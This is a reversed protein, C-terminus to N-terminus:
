EFRKFFLGLLSEPRLKQIISENPTIGEIRSLGLHIRDNYWKLFGDFSKFNSRNEEYTRNWRENKGNTQPHNIRSLIQKINQEKLFVEFKAIGKEANLKKKNAYFQSGRDTNLALLLMSYKEFAVTKAKLVMKQANATTASNFEGGALILRSADDIWIIVEKGPIIKSTHYDMHGLSGSHKREYRCYTRQKKKKPDEKSIGKEILLAHLKNRPIIKNHYKMIYLRLAVAGRIKSEKASKCILEKQENTLEIKPRRRRNLKPIQGTKKYEAKLQQFRRVKIGCVYALDKNKKNKQKFAWKLKKEKLRVM